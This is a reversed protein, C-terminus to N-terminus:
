NECREPGGAAERNRTSSSSRARPHHHHISLAGCPLPCPSVLVEVVPLHKFEAMQCLIECDRLKSFYFDREKEVNDINLKMTTIQGRLEDVEKRAGPAARAAAATSPVGSSSPAPRQVDDDDDDNAYADVGAAATLVLQVAGDRIGVTSPLATRLKEVCPGSDAAWPLEVLSERESVRNIRSASV